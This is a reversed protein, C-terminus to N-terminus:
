EGIFIQSLPKKLNVICLQVPCLWLYTDKNLM